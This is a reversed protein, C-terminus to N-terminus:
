VISDSDQKLDDGVRFIESLVFIIFSFFIGEYSLAIVTSHFLKALAIVRLSIINEKVFIKKKTLNIFLTKLGWISVLVSIWKTILWLTGSITEFKFSVRDALKEIGSDFGQTIFLYFIWGCFIITLTWVSVWLIRLLVSMVECISRKGFVNISKV